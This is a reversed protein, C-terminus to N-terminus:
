TSISLCSTGRRDPSQSSKQCITRSRRGAMHQSPPASRRSALVARSNAPVSVIRVRLGSCGQNQAHLARQRGKRGHRAARNAASTSDRSTAAFADVSLSQSHSFGSNRVHQAYSFKLATVPENARNTGKLNELMRTAACFALSSRARALNHILCYSAPYLAGSSTMAVRGTCTSRSSRAIGWLRATCTRPQQQL